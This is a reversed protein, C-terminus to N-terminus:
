RDIELVEFQDVMLIEGPSGPKGVLWDVGGFRDGVDWAAKRGAPNSTIDKLFLTVTTWRGVVAEIETFLNEQKTQNYLMFSLSATEKLFYRFRVATKATATFFAKGGDHIYGIQGGFYDPNPPVGSVLVRKGSVSAIKGSSLPPLKDIELRWLLTERLRKAALEVGRAAVAYYGSPVDVTRGDFRRQLRVKGETVELQTSGKEGSEVVIRLTTGLVKAMGHPTEFVMAQDKPQRAVEARVAGKEVFVRKGGEARLDKVAAGPGAEVRTGDAFVLVGRAENEATELGQGPLLDMEARAPSRGEKGTVFVEGAVESIKAVSAQTERLPAPPPAEPGKPSEPTRAQAQVREEAKRAADIADRMEREIREKESKLKAVEAQRKEEASPDPPAPSEQRALRAEEQEMERLREESRKRVAEAHERMARANEREVQRRAEEAMEAKRRDSGTTFVSVLVAIGFLVGAAALALIWPNWGSRRRPLGRRRAPFPARIAEGQPLAPQVKQIFRTADREAALRGIFSRVFAERESNEKRLGRLLGDIQDNRLLRRRLEDDREMAELLDREESATLVDGCSLRIWLEVAREENMPDGREPVDM